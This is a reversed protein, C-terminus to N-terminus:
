VGTYLTLTMTTEYDGHLSKNIEDATTNIWCGVDSDDTAETPAVSIVKAAVAGISINTDASYLSNPNTDAGIEHSVTQDCMMTLDVLKGDDTEAGGDLTLGGNAVSATVNFGANHNSDLDLNIDDDSDTAVINAFGAGFAIPTASTLTNSDAISGSLTADVGFATLPVM